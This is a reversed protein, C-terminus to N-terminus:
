TCFCHFHRMTVVTSVVRNLVHFCACHHNSRLVVAECHICFCKRCVQFSRVLRQEILSKLPNMTCVFWREAELTVRFCARTRM